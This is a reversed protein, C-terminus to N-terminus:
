VVENRDEPVVDWRKLLGGYKGSPDTIYSEVEILQEQLTQWDTDSM